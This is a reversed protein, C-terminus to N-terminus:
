LVLFDSFEEFGPLKSKKLRPSRDEGLFVEAAPASDATGPEDLNGSSVTDGTTSTSGSRGPQLFRKALKSGSAM